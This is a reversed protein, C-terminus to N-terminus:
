EGLAKQPNVEEEDVDNSDPNACAISDKDVDIPSSDSFDNITEPISSSSRM